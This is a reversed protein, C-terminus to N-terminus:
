AARKKSPAATARKAKVPNGIKSKLDLLLRLAENVAESDPFAKALDAELIRIQAALKRGKAAHRGRTAKSWDFQSDAFENKM